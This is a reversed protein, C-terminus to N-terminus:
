DNLGVNSKLQKVDEQLRTIQVTHEDIIKDIEKNKEKMEKKIEDVGRCTYEIKELIRGNQNSKSLQASTFTAVGILCTIIGVICSIVAIL